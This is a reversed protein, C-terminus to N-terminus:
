WDWTPLEEYEAGDRDFKIWDAGREKAWAIVRKLEEPVEDADDGGYEDHAYVLWGYRMPTCTPLSNGGLEIWIHQRGDPGKGVDSCLGETGSHGGHGPRNLYEVAAPSLHQNSIDALVFTKM